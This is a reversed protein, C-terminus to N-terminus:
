QMSDLLESFGESPMPKYYYFGQMENCGIKPQMYICIENNDIAGQFSNIVDARHQEMEAIHPGYIYVNGDVESALRRVTNAHSIIEAPIVSDDGISM